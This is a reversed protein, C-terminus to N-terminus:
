FTSYSYSASPKYSFEFPKNNKVLLKQKDPYNNVFGGADGLIYNDGEVKYVAKSGSERYSEIVRNGIYNDGDIDIQYITEDALLHTEYNYNVSEILEGFNNFTEKSWKSKDKMFASYYNQNVGMSDYVSTQMAISPIVKFEHIIGNKTLANTPNNLNDGVNLSNSDFILVGSDTKYLGAVNNSTSQHSNSYVDAIKDGGIQGDKNIDIQYKHEDVLLQGENYKRTEVHHGSSDFIGRNWSGKWYLSGGGDYTVMSVDDTKLTFLSDGNKNKLLTPVLPTNNSISSNDVILGGSETKYLSYNSLQHDAIKKVIKDGIQGDSTFDRQLLVEDSLIQSYLYNNSSILNGTNSDFTELMWNNGSNSYVDLTQINKNQQPDWYEYNKAGTPTYKFTHVKNDNTPVIPNQSVNGVNCDLIILSM